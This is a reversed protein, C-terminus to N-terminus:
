ALVTPHKHTAYNGLVVHVIRGDPVVAEIANLFRVFEQHRHRQM